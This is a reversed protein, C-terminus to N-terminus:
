APKKPPMTSVRSDRTVSMKKAIGIRSPLMMMRVEIGVGAPLWNKEMRLTDVAIATRPHVEVARTARDETIWTFCASKTLAERARPALRLQIIRLCMRGFAIAGTITIVVM